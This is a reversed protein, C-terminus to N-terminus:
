KGEGNPAEAAALANCAANWAICWACPKGAKAGNDGDWIGPISHAHGPANGERERHGPLERVVAELLERWIDAPM